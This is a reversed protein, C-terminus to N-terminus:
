AFSYRNTYDNLANNMHEATARAFEKGDINLVIEKDNNLKSLLSNILSTEASRNINLTEAVKIEDPIATNVMSESAKQVMKENEEIGLAMGESTYQGIEMFVRSPSHIGLTDKVGDVIGSFFSKVKKTLWTGLSVIGNWVGKVINAGIDYMKSPLSSVASVINSVLQGGAERGKIGLNTAFTSVKSLANSLWTGIKSPLQSIYEVVNRLFEKGMLVALEISESVWQKIYNYTKRLWDWIREPLQSFYEIVNRLFEKGILIALEISEEVWQKIYNYTKTLWDWIKDPLESFFTVVNEIWIPVNTVLYDWIDQGWKIINGLVVGLAYGIKYPLEGFWNVISEIVAPITETFFNKINEGWGRLTEMVNEWLEIFFNKINEGWESFKELVSNWLEAFWEPIGKFFEVVSNWAEPITNTFFDCIAGWVEISVEKIKEWAKIVADRFGDNTNWLYVLWVILGAIAAVVLGIPNALLATNMLWQAITMGETAIKWAKYAEVMGQIMNAVNLVLMATGLSIVIGILAEGNDMIWGLGTTIAEGLNEMIEMVPNLSPLFEDVTEKLATWFSQGENLKSNFSDLIPMAINLLENVKNFLPEVIKTVINSTVDQLTSMLGSFTKSQAEMAGETNSAISNIAENYIDATIKGEGAMKKVEAVTVGMVEALGKYIPIGRDQLINLDETYAVQAMQVQSYQRVMEKLSDEQIGFASGMNGFKTLQNFLDEGAFGANTLQKAMEDVGVKSFPTSSAYSTIDDMMQKAQEQTGLLTTWSTISTELSANGDIGLKVISTTIDAVKKVIALGAITKAFNKFADSLSGVGKKTNDTQEETDGLGDNFDDIDDSTRDAEDGLNDLEDSLESTSDGLEDNFNVMEELSGCYEIRMGTASNQIVTTLERVSRGLSEVNSQAQQGQRSANNISREYDSSDLTLRASLNFLNMM